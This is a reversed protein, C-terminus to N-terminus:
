SSRQAYTFGEGITEYTHTVTVFSVPDIEKIIEKLLALERKGIVVMLIRKDHGSHVGTGYILTAGRNLRTLVSQSIEEHYDSIIFVKYGFLGGEQVRAVVTSMIFIGILTYIAIMLNQRHIAGISIVVADFVLLSTSIKVNWKKSLIKAVALAGGTTGSGKLVLGIGVGMAVGYLIAMLLLDHSFDPLLPGDIMGWIAISVTLAVVGYITKVVIRWDFMKFLLILFPVNLVLNSIWVDIGFERYIILNIGTFGGDTLGYRISFETVAFGMLFTGFFITIFNRVTKFKM